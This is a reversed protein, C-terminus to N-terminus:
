LRLCTRKDIYPYYIGNSKYVLTSRIGALPNNSLIEHLDDEEPYEETTKILAKRPYM